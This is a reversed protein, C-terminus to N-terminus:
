GEAPPPAEPPAPWGRRDGRRREEFAFRPEAQPMESRDEGIERADFTTEPAAFISGTDDVLRLRWLPAASDKLAGPWIGIHELLRISAQMLAITRPDATGSPEPAVLVTALVHEISAEFPLDGTLEDMATVIAGVDGAIPAHDVGPLEILRAGPIHEALYRAGAIPVFDGARHLVLTPASIAGLAPRVDLHEVWDLHAIATAPSMCAREFIGFMRRMVRNEASM